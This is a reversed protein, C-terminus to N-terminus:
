IPLFATTAIAHVVRNITRDNRQAVIRAMMDQHAALKAFIRAFSLNLDDRSGHALLFPEGNNKARNRLRWSAIEINRAGNYLKQEDLSDVLFFERQGNWSQRIMGTMGAVLAFVRDGQYDEAFALLMADSGSKGALGDFHLGSSPGFLELLRDDVSHGRSKTLENPNRKYLKVMLQQLLNEQVQVYTDAVLDVDSKALDKVEFEHSACATLVLVWLLRIIKM